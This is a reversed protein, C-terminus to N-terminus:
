LPSNRVKERRRLAVLGLLGSGLLWVAGPIPVAPINTAPASLYFNDFAVKTGEVPGLYWWMSFGVPTTVSNLSDTYERLLQWGSATWYYGSITDGERTLRLKGAADTTALQSLFNDRFHTLYYGSEGSNMREVAAQVYTPDTGIGIRTQSSAPWNLLEFDVQADFNGSVPVKFTLGAYGEAGQTVEIRGNIEAITSGGTATATWYYPNINNNDFNDAFLGASAPTTFALLM